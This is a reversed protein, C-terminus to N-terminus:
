PLRATGSLPHGCADTLFRILTTIAYPIWRKGDRVSFNFRVVGIISRFHSLLYGGGGAGPCVDPRRQKIGGRALASARGPM